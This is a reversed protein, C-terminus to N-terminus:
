RENLTVLTAMVYDLEEETLNFGERWRNIILELKKNM